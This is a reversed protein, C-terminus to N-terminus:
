LSCPQFNPPQQPLGTFAPPLKFQNTTTSVSLFEPFYKPTLIPPSPSPYSLFSIVMGESRIEDFKAKTTVGLNQKENDANVAGEKM